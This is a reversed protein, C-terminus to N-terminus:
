IHISRRVENWTNNTDIGCFVSCVRLRKNSVNDDEWTEPWAVQFIDNNIIEQLSVNNINMNDKGVHNVFNKLQVSEPNDPAYLKGATMCCPFVLGESSVFISNSKLVLCDICTKGLSIEWENLPTDTQTYTPCIKGQIKELAGKEDLNRFSQLYAGTDFKEDTPPNITYLIRNNDTFVEFGSSNNEFGFAKKEYFKDIGLSKALERAEEIQHQNHKFVLFHWESGGPGKKYNEMAMMIKSWYTGRRYIWNTDALGDVSFVIQGTPGILESLETWFEPSRGSANTNMTIVLNPNISLAYRLINLLEPNTMSDGYNGCMSMGVLNKIFDVPFWSVFQELTVYTEVLNEVKSGGSYRRNCIACSANCLSSSELDLHQIENYRYM